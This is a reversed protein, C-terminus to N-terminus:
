RYIHLAEGHMQAFCWERHSVEFMMKDQSKSTKVEIYAVVQNTVDDEIRIDYCQGSEESENMWVVTQGAPVRAVLYRGTNMLVTMVM